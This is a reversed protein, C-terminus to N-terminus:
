QWLIQKFMVRFDLTTLYWLTFSASQSSIFTYFSVWTFILFPYCSLVMCIYRWVFVSYNVCWIHGTTFFTKKKWQSVVHMCVSTWVPKNATLKDLQTVTVNKIWLCTACLRDKVMQAISEPWRSMFLEAIAKICLIHRFRDFYKWRNIQYATVHKRRCIYFLYLIFEKFCSMFLLLCWFKYM